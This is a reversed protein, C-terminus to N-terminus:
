MRLLVFALLGLSVTALCASYVAAILASKAITLPWSDKFVRRVTVLSYWITYAFAAVGLIVGVTTVLMFAAVVNVFALVGFWAAHVHLALYLHAPYRPLRRRWAVRTLVAFVPVLLFMAKPLIAEVERNIQEPNSAARELVDMGFIRAPLGAELEKRMEPTITRSGDSNIITVRAMERRRQHTISEVLPGSVFYAISCILYLRLPSLWRARRGAFFDLTLLGPKLFLAKLTRPIKGDWHTLEHTTEHLFDTLTLDVTSRKQGCGACFPGVLPRGCNACAPQEVVDM